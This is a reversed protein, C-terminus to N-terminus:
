RFEGFGLRGIFRAFLAALALPFAAFAETPPLMGFPFRGLLLLDSVLLRLALVSWAVACFFRGGFIAVAPILCLFASAGKWSYLFAESVLTISPISDITFRRRPLFFITTKAPAPIETLYSVNVDFHGDAASATGVM